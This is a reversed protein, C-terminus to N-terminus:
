GHSGGKQSQLIAAVLARGEGIPCSPAYGFVLDDIQDPTLSDGAGLANAPSALAAAAKLLDRMQKESYVLALAHVDKAYCREPLPLALIAASLDQAAPLPTMKQGRLLCENYDVLWQNAQKCTMGDHHGPHNDHTPEDHQSALVDAGSASSALRAEVRSFLELMHLATDMNQPEGKIYGVAADLMAQLDQDKVVFEREGDAQQVLATAEPQTRRALEAELEQIRVHMAICEELVGVMGKAIVEGVLETTRKTLEKVHARAHARIDQKLESM